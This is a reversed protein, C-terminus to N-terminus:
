RRQGGGASVEAGVENSRCGWGTKWELVVGGRGCGQLLFAALYGEAKVGRQELFMISVYGEFPHRHDITEGSLFADDGV